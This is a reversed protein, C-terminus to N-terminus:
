EVRLEDGLLVDPLRRGARPIAGRLQEVLKRRGRGLVAARAARRAAGGLGWRGQGRGSRRAHDARMIPTCRGARVLSRPGALPVCASVYKPGRPPYDRLISHKVYAGASTGTIM